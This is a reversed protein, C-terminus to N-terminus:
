EDITHIAQKNQIQKEKMAWYKTFFEPLCQSNMSSQGNFLVCIGIRMQRDIGIQGCYGNVYGGHTVIRHPGLDLIRWGLAYYDKKPRPWAAFHWNECNTQVRPNFVSDLYQPKIINPRNGLLVQLWQGMDNISANIGGATITQYYGQNPNKKSWQYKGQTHPYCKNGSCNLTNFDFSASNMKAPMFIREKLFDPFPKNACSAMVEEGLSFVLNQYAYTRGEPDSFKANNLERILRERTFNEEILNTYAHYPMGTSHSLLHWFRIRSAQGNKSRPNFDPIYTKVFSSTNLLSDQMLIGAAIGAFGKSLSGIRFLSYEDVKQDNSIEKKGYGKIFIIQSDLVMVVAAGPPGINRMQKTFYEDFSSMFEATEDDLPKAKPATSIGFMSSQSTNCNEFNGCSITFGTCFVFLLFIKISM